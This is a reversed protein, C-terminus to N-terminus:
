APGGIDTWSIGNMADSADPFDLWALDPGLFHALNNLLTQDLTLPSLMTDNTGFPPRPMWSAPMNTVESAGRSAACNDNISDVTSRLASPATAVHPHDLPDVTSSLATKGCSDAINRGVVPSVRLQNSTSIDKQHRNLRNLIYDVVHLAWAGGFQQDSFAHFIAKCQVLRQHAETRISPDDSNMNFLHTISALVLCTICTAGLSEVLDEKYFDMAIDTIQRAASRVMARSPDPTHEPSPEVPNLVSGAPLMRPRHLNMVTAHYMMSLVGRHALEARELGKPYSPMNSTHWLEDPIGQRWEDLDREYSKLQDMNPPNRESSLRDTGELQQSSYLVATKGLGFEPYAAKCIRGFLHLLRVFSVSLQAFVRQQGISSPFAGPLLHDPPRDFDFDEMELMPVNHDLDGIRPSRSLAFSCIIDRTELMWWLRRRQKDKAPDVSPDTSAQHLGIIRSLSLAVGIWHWGDKNENPGEFWFTWLMFTQILCVRDNEYDADYLLRMKKHISRRFANRSLFGLKRVLRVDVWTSGVFILAQLLLLSLKEDSKTGKVISIIKVPNVIPFLPQVHQFYCRLAAEQLNTEPLVFAGRKRLYEVDEPDM